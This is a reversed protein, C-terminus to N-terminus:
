ESPQQQRKGHGWGKKGKGFRAKMEELEEASVAGDGDTDLREFFKASRDKGNSLEALSIQGDGDADRNEMMRDIRNEMGQKARELVAATMEERSLFGDGDADQAAFQASRHEAMEEPTIKGDSNADLQEFNLQPGRPGMRNGGEKAGHAFAPAIAVAGVASITLAAIIGTLTTKKM